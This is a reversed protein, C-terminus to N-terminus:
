PRPEGHPSLWLQGPAGPLVTTRLGPAVAELMEARLRARMVVPNQRYEALVATFARAEGTARAVRDSAAATAAQRLRYAEAQAVPLTEARYSEAQQTLTRVEVQASIVEQFAPLVPRAPLLERFELAALQLGLGLRDLALQAQRQTEQRAADRGSTMVAFSDRAATARLLERYALNELAAHADSAGQLYVLPDRVRFQVPVSITLLEDGSGVLLNKEGEYHKETWLIPQGTDSEFGLVFEEVRGTPVIRITEFPWPLTWHWGPGVPPTVFEGWRVRVGAHGVPVVTAVTAGWALLAAALALPGLARRAYQFAWVGALKVGLAAEFRQAIEEWPNSRRLVLALVLSDGVPGDSRRAAAPRYFRLLARVTADVVLVATVAAIVRGTVLRYDRQAYLLAGLSGAVAVGVWFALRALQTVGTLASSQLKEGLAVAYRGLFSLLVGAGIGLAIGLQQGTVSVEGVPMRWARVVLGTVVVAGIGLALLQGRRQFQPLALYREVVGHETVVQRPEDDRVAGGIGARAQAELETLDVTQYHFFLWHIGAVVAGWVAFATVAAGLGGARAAVTALAVLAFVVTVTAAANRLSRTDASKLTTVTM